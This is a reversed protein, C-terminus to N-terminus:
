RTEPIIVTPFACLSDVTPLQVARIAPHLERDIVFESRAFTFGPKLHRQQRHNRAILPFSGVIRVIRSGTDIRTPKFSKNRFRKLQDRARHQFGLVFSM